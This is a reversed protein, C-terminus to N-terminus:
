ECHCQPPPVNLAPDSFDEQEGLPIGTIERSLVNAREWAPPKNLETFDFDACKLDKGCGLLYISGTGPNYLWACYRCNYCAVSKCKPLDAAEVLATRQRHHAIERKLQEEKKEWSDHCAWWGISFAIIGTIIALM